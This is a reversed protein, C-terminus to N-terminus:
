AEEDSANAGAGSVVGKVRQYTMVVEEALPHGDSDSQCDGPARAPLNGDEARALQPSGLVLPSPRSVPFYGSPRITSMGSLRRRTTGSFPTELLTETCTLGFPGAQKAARVKQENQSLSPFAVSKGSRNTKSLPREPWRGYPIYAASILWVCCREPLPPHPLFNTSSVMLSHDNGSQQIIIEQEPLGWIPCCQWLGRM